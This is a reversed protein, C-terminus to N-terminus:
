ARRAGRTALLMRALYLPSPPNWPLTVNVVGCGAMGTLGLAGGILLARRGIVAGVSGTLSSGVVAGCLRM